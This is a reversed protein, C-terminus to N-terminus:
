QNAGAIASIAQEMVDRLAEALTAPQELDAHFGGDFRDDREILTIHPSDTTPGCSADASVQCEGVSYWWHPLTAKFLRIAEELGDPQSFQWDTM